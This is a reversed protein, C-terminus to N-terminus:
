ESIKDEEVLYDFFKKLGESNTNEKMETSTEYKGFNKNLFDINITGELWENNKKAAYPNYAQGREIEELINYFDM